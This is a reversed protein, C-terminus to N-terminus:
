RRFLGADYGDPSFVLSPVFESHGDLTSRIHRTATDWLSIKGDQQGVALTAGDPASLWAPPAPARPSVTDELARSEHDVLDHLAVAATQSGVAFIRNDPSFATCMVNKPGRPLFAYDPRKTLEWIAISGDFGVSSVMAGDPRFEISEVTGAHGILTEKAQSHAGWDCEGLLCAAVSAVLLAVTPWTVFPLRVPCGTSSRRERQGAHAESRTDISEAIM